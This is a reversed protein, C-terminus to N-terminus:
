NRFYGICIFITFLVAATARLIGHPNILNVYAIAAAIAAITIIATNRAAGYSFGRFLEPATSINAPVILKAM